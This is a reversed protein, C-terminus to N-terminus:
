QNRRRGNVLNRCIVFITHNWKVLYNMPSAIYRSYRWWPWPNLALIRKSAPEGWVVSTISPPNGLNRLLNCPGVSSSPTTRHDHLMSRKLHYYTPLSVTHSVLSSLIWVCDWEIISQSSAVSSFLLTQCRPKEKRYKKYPFPSVRDDSQSISLLNGYFEHIVVMNKVRDCPRQEGILCICM